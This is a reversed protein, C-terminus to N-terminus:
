IVTWFSTTVQDQLTFSEVTAPTGHHSDSM